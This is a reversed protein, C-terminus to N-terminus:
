YSCNPSTIPEIKQGNPAYKGPKVNLTPNDPNIKPKNKYSFGFLSFFCKVILAIALVAITKIITFKINSEIHNFM